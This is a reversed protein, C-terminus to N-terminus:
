FVIMKKQWKNIYCKLFFFFLQIECCKSYKLTGEFKSKFKKTLLWKNQVCWEMFQTWPINKNYQKQFLGVFSLYIMKTKTQM